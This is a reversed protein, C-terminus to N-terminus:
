SLSQEAEDEQDDEPTTNESPSEGEELGQVTAPFADSITVEDHIHSHYAHEGREKENNEQRTRATRVVRSVSETSWGDALLASATAVDTIVIAPGSLVFVSSQQQIEHLLGQAEQSQSLWCGYYYAYM